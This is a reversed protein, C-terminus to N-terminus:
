KQPGTYEPFIDFWIFISHVKNSVIFCKRKLKCLIRLKTGFIKYYPIKDNQRNVHVFIPADLHWICM